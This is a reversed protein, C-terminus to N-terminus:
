SIMDFQAGAGAEVAGADGRGDLRDLAEVRDLSEPAAGESDLWSGGVLRPSKGASRRRRVCLVEDVDFGTASASATTESRLFFTM